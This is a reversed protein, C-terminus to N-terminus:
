PKVAQAAVFCGTRSAVRSRALGEFRALFDLFRLYSRRLYSVGVPDLLWAILMALVRPVHVLTTEDRVEFGARALLRRLGLADCSVGTFYPVIRLWVLPAQIRSRVARVLNRTNDMTVVLKGDGRLARHLQTFAGAIDRRDAFHDLTSTSVVSDFSEAKFPLQRVDAVVALLSPHCRVARDVAVASLNIGIMADPRAALLPYIGDSIAEDFLDTKLTWQVPGRRLRRSLLAGNVRDSHRRWLQATCDDPWQRSNWYDTQQATARGTM